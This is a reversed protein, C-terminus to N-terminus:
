PRPTSRVARTGPAAMAGWGCPLACTVYVKSDVRDNDYRCVSETATASYGCQPCKGFFDLLESVTGSVLRPAPKSKERIGRQEHGSEDRM